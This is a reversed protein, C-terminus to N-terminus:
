KRSKIKVPYGNLFSLTPMMQLQIEDYKMSTDVEFRAFFNVIFIKMFIMAYKYGLCMRKGGSFPTFAFPHIKTMNEPEFRSPRFIKADDGWFRENRQLFFIPLALITHEPITFGELEIEKSNERFIFPAIPFLRMVEKIVTEIFPFNQTEENTITFDEDCNSNKIEDIVKQQIDQHMALM